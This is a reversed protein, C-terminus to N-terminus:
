VFRDAAREASREGGAGGAERDVGAGEGGRVGGAVLRVPQRAAARPLDVGGAPRGAAAYRDVRDGRAVWRSVYARGAVEVRNAGALLGGARGGGGPERARGRAAARGGSARGGPRDAGPRDSQPLTLEFVYGSPVGAERSAPTVALGPEFPVAECGTTGAQPGWDAPAWPYGRPLHSVFRATKWVGPQVWSDLRGDVPLGVDDPTCSTPNRLFAKQAGGSQCIPGGQWPAMQGRCAREPDHVPDAPVGWFTLTTGAVALGQPMNACACRCGTTAAAACRRRRAHRGDGVVNFGFRAPVDPPPVMNFVPLPGWIARADGGNIRVLATGM